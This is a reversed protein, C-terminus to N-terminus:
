ELRRRLHDGSHKWHELKRQEAIDKDQSVHDVTLLERTGCEACCRGYHSLVAEWDSVKRRRKGARRGARRVATRNRHKERCKSNCFKRSGVLSVFDDGCAVCQRKAENDM